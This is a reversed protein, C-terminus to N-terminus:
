FKMVIRRKQKLRQEGMTNPARNKALGRNKALCHARPHGHRVLIDSTQQPVNGGLRRSLAWLALRTSAAAQPSVEVNNM